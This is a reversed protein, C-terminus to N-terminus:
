APIGNANVWAQLGPLLNEVVIGSGTQRAERLVKRATADFKKDAKAQLEAKLQAVDTGNKAALAAVVTDITARWGAAQPHEDGYWWLSELSQGIANTAARETKYLVKGTTPDPVAAAAQAQARAAKEAARKERELDSSRRIEGVRSLVEVPAWPVCTTCTLVGAASIIEDETKGSYDTLWVFSTTHRCTSCSTSLHVHGGVNQVLYARTWGGRRDYEAHLPSLQATLRAVMPTYENALANLQDARAYDPHQGNRAHHASKRLGAQRDQLKAREQVLKNIQADIQPPSMTALDANTIANAAAADDHSTNPARDAM